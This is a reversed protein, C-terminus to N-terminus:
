RRENYLSRIMLQLDQCFFLREGKKFVFNDPVWITAVVCNFLSSKGNLEVERTIPTPNFKYCYFSNQEPHISAGDTTHPLLSSIKSNFLKSDEPLGININIRKINMEVRIFLAPMTKSESLIIYDSCFDGDIHNILVSWKEKTPLRKKHLDAKPLIQRFNECQSPIQILSQSLEEGFFKNYTKSFRKKDSSLIHAAYILVILPPLSSFLYVASEFSTVRVSDEITTLGTFILFTACLALVITIGILITIPLKQHDGSKIEEFM